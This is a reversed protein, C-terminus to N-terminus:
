VRWTRHPLLTIHMIGLLDCLTIRDSPSSLIKTIAEQYTAQSTDPSPSIVYAFTKTEIGFQSYKIGPSRVQFVLIDAISQGLLSDLWKM